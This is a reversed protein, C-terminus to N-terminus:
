QCAYHPQTHACVTGASCDADSHCGSICVHQDSACVLGTGPQGGNCDSDQTCPTPPAALHYVRYTSYTTGDKDVVNSGLITSIPTHLHAGNHFDCTTDDLSQGAGVVLGIHGCNHENLSDAICFDSGAANSYAVVDGPTGGVAPGGPVYEDYPYAALDAVLTPVWTTTALMLHGAQLCHSAFEACLGLGDNWHADCYAVADAAVYSGPLPPLSADPPLMGDRPPDGKGVDADPSGVFGADGIDLGGSPHVRACAALLLVIGVRVNM